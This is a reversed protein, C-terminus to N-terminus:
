KIKEVIFYFLIYLIFDLKWGATLTAQATSDKGIGDLDEFEPKSSTSLTLSSFTTGLLRSCSEGHLSRITPWSLDPVLVM